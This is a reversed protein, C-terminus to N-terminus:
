ARQRGRAGFWSDYDSHLPVLENSARAIEEGLKTVEGQDTETTLRYGLYGLYNALGHIQTATILSQTDRNLFQFYSTNVQVMRSMALYIGGTMVFGIIAIVGVIKYTIKVDRLHLAPLWIFPKRMLTFRAFALPRFLYTLMLRM